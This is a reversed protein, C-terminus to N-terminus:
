RCFPLALIQMVDRDTVVASALVPRWGCTFRTPGRLRNPQILQFLM